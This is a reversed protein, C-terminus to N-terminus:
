LSTAAVAVRAPWAGSLLAAPPAPVCSGTGVCTLPRRKLAVHQYEFSEPM